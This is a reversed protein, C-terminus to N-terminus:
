LSVGQAEDTPVNIPIIITSFTFNIIGYWVIWCLYFLAYAPWPRLSTTDYVIRGQALKNEQGFM